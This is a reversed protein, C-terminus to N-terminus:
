HVHAAERALRQAVHCAVLSGAEDPVPDLPPDVELCIQERWPCRPAYACHDIPRSIPRCAPFARSSSGGRGRPDAYCDLLARTYPHRADDLM